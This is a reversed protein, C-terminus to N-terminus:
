QDGILAGLPQLQRRIVWHEPPKKIVQNDAAQAIRRGSPLRNPRAAMPLVELHLFHQTPAIRGSEDGGTPLPPAHLAQVVAPAEFAPAADADAQSISSTRGFFMDSHLKASTAWTAMSNM